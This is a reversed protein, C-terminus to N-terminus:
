PAPTEVRYLPLDMKHGDRSTIILRASNESVLMFSAHLNDQAGEWTTGSVRALAFRAQGVIKAYDDPLALLLRAAPGLARNSMVRIPYTMALVTWTGNFMAQPYSVAAAPAAQTQAPPPGGQGDPTPQGAAMAHCAPFVALASAAMLATFRTMGAGYFKLMRGIHGTIPPITWHLRM